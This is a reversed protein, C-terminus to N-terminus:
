IRRSADDRKKARSSLPITRRPRQHALRRSLQAVQHDQRTVVRAPFIRQPDDVVHHHSQLFCVSVVPDLLITLRRQSHRKVFRARSVDHQQRAFAVFVRLNQAIARKLEVIALLRPLNQAAFPKGLLRCLFLLLKTDQSSASSVLASSTPSRICHRTASIASASPTGAGASSSGMAPNAPTEISERVTRGPSSNIAM